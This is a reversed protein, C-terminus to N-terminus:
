ELLLSCIIFGKSIFSYGTYEEEREKAEFINNLARKEFVRLEGRRLTLFVPKYGYLIIPVTIVGYVKIKVNKRLLRLVFCESGFRLANEWILTNKSYKNKFNKNSPKKRFYKFKAM